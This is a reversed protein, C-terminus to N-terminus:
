PAASWSKFVSRFQSLGYELFYIKQSLGKNKKKDKTKAKSEKVVMSWGRRSFRRALTEPAPCDIRQEELREAVLVAAKEISMGDVNLELIQQMVSSENLLMEAEKKVPTRGKGRKVLLLATLDENKPSTIYKEFADHLWDLVWLPPYLGRKHTEVFAEMAYIPNEKTSKYVGNFLDRQFGSLVLSLYITDEETVHFNKGDQMRRQYSDAWEALEIATIHPDIESLKNELITEEPPQMTGIVRVMESRQKTRRKVHTPTKKM